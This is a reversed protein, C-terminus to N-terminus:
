SRRLIVPSGVQISSRASAGIFEQPEHAIVESNDRTNIRIDSSLERVSGQADLIGHISKNVLKTISSLNEETLGQSTDFTQRTVEGFNANIGSVPIVFSQLQQTLEQTNAVAKRTLSNVNEINKKNLDQGKNFDFRNGHAADNNAEEIFENANKFNQYALNQAEYLNQNSFENIKNVIDNNQNTFSSLDNQNNFNQLSAPQLPSLNLGSLGNFFNMSLDVVRSAAELNAKEKDTLDRSQSQAVLRALQPVIQMSQTIASLPDSNTSLDNVLSISM